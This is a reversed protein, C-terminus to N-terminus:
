PVTVSVATTAHGIYKDNAVVAIRHKGSSLTFKKALQDGWKTYQKKGDIWVQLQNVGAPSNGSAKVLLPSSVTAGNSIGCIKAALNASRPPPCNKWGGTQIGVGLQNSYWDIVAYDARSDGDMDRAAVASIWTGSLSGQTGLTDNGLGLVYDYGGYPQLRPDIGSAFPNYHLLDQNLDGNIDAPVITGAQATFQTHTTLTFNSGGNNKYMWVTNPNAGDCGGMDPVPRCPNGSLLTVDLRGDNNFDAVAAADMPDTTPPKLYTPGSFTGDGRGWLIVGVSGRVFALDLKGDGNIDASQLTFSSGALQISQSRSFHLGTGDGLGINLTCNAGGPYGAQPQDCTIEALDIKGDHNFDGLTFSGSYIGGLGVKGAYYFTGDGNNLFVNISDYFVDPFMFDLWGDGNVDATKLEALNDQGFKYPMDPGLNGGGTGLKVIVGGGSSGDDCCSYSYAVDPIGDRNFDAIVVGTTGELELPPTSYWKLNFGVSGGGFASIRLLLLCAFLSAVRM